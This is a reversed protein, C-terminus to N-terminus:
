KRGKKSPPPKPPLPIILVRIVCEDPHPEALTVADMYKRSILEVRIFRDLKTMVAWAKVSKIKSKKM